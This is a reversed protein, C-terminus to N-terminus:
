FSEGMLYGFALNHLYEETYESTFEVDLSDAVRVILLAFDEITKFGEMKEAEAQILNQIYKIKEEKQLQIGSMIGEMQRDVFDQDFKEAM